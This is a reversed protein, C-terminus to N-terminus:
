AKRAATAMVELPAPRGLWWEFSAAAQLVLFEVGDMSPLAGNRAEGVAPTEIEAYALDIIGGATGTVEEPLREGGMGLPTANVVVAGAVGAGFPIVGAGVGVREVLERARSEDRAAVYLDREAAGTLVAAAAGGAGLVLVAAGPPFRPDDLARRTAIVDSSLGEVLGNRARMTNVSGSRAAETTLSDALAAAEAKLPMTVNFGDLRGDRLEQVADALESAGARIAVYTGDIGFHDLAATHIAPSRSHEIPDGLVAFRLSM